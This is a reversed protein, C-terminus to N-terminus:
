LGEDAGHGPDDPAAERPRSAAWLVLGLAATARLPHEALMRLWRLPLGEGAQAPALRLALTLAATALAAAGWPTWRPRGPAAPPEPLPSMRQM